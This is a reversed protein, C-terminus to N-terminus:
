NKVMRADMVTNLTLTNDKVSYRLKGGYRNVVNQASPIGYGHQVEGTKTAYFFRNRFFNQDFGEPLSNTITILFTSEEMELLVSVHRNKKDPAKAAAQVANELLNMLVTSIDYEPLPLSEPLKVKAEFQVNRNAANISQISLIANILRNETFRMVPIAELEKTLAAAYDAAQLPEERSLTALMRLHHLEDHRVRALVENTREMGLLSQATFENRLKLAEMEQATKVRSEVLDVLALLFEILLVATFIVFALPLPYGAVTEKWYIIYLEFLSPDFVASLVFIAAAGVFFLGMMKLFRKFYVNGIKAIKITFGVLIAFLLLTLYALTDFWMPVTLSFVSWATVSSFYIAWIPVVIRLFLKREKRMQTSLYLLPMLLCLVRIVMDYSSLISTANLKDLYYFMQLLAAAALLLLPLAKKVAPLRYLFLGFLLLFLVGFIAGPITQESTWAIQQKAAVASSLLTFTISGFPEDTFARSLVTITKGNWAPNTAFVQTFLADSPLKEKPLEGVATIPRNLNSYVPEEDIFVCMELWDTIAVTEYNSWTEPVIRRLVITEGSDIAEKPSIPKEIDDQITTLTWGAADEPTVSLYLQQAESTTFSYFYMLLACAIVLFPIILLYKKKM